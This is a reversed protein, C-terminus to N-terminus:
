IAIALLRKLWPIANNYQLDCGGHQMGIYPRQGHIHIYTCLVDKM